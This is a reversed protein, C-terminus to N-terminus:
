KVLPKSHAPWIVDDIFRKSISDYESDGDWKREPRKEGPLLRGPLGDYDYDVDYEGDGDRNDDYRDPERLHFWITGSHKLGTKISNAEHWTRQEQKTPDEDLVNPWL